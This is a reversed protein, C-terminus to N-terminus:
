SSQLKDRATQKQCMRVIEQAIEPLPLVKDVCNLEIASKPMGFITSTAEDQAITFGGSQKIAKTGKLVCFGTPRTEIGALDLGVASM